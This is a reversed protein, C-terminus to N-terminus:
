LNKEEDETNIENNIQESDESNSDVKIGGKSAASDLIKLYNRDVWDLLYQGGFASLPLALSRYEGFDKLRLFESILNTIFFNILVILGMVVWSYRKEKKIFMFGLYAGTGILVSFVLAATEYLSYITFEQM